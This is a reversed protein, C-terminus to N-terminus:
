EGSSGEALLHTQNPCTASDGFTHIQIGRDFITCYEEAEFRVHIHINLWGDLYEEAISRRIDSCIQGDFAYDLKNIGGNPLHESSKTGM